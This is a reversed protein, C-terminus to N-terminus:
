LQTMRRRGAVKGGNKKVLTATQDANEVAVFTLWSPGLPDSPEKQMGYLAAIAQGNKKLFTMGRGAIATDEPTWGFLGAYFKKAAEPNSTGLQCWCFMGAAHQTMTTM